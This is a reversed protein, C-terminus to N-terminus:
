FGVLPLPQEMAEIGLSELEKCAMLATELDYGQNADVRIRVEEGIAQRIQTLAEIDRQLDIGTKVKLIRFGRERVHKEAEARM